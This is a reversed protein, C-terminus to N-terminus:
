PIIEISSIKKANIYEMKNVVLSRTCFSFFGPATNDIELAFVYNNKVTQPCRTLELFNYPRKRLVSPGFPHSRNLAM